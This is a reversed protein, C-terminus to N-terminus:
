VEDVGRREHEYGEYGNLDKEVTIDTPVPYEIVLAFEGTFIPEFEPKVRVVRTFSSTDYVHQDSEVEKTASLDTLDLPKLNLQGLLTGFVQQMKVKAEDISKVEPADLILAKVGNTLVGQTFTLGSLLNATQETVGAQTLNDKNDIFEKPYEGIDVQEVFVNFKGKFKEQLEVALEKGKYQLVKVKEDTLTQISEDTFYKELVEDDAVVPNVELLTAADLLNDKLFQGRKEQFAREVAKGLIYDKSFNEGGISLNETVITNGKVKLEKNDKVSLSRHKGKIFKPRLLVAQSQAGLDLVLKTKVKSGLSSVKHYATPTLETTSSVGYELDGDSNFQYYERPSGNVDDAHLKWKALFGDINSKLCLLFM